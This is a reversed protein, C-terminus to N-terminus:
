LTPRVVLYEVAKRIWPFEPGCKRLVSTKAIIDDVIADNTAHKLSHTVEPQVNEIPTVSHIVMPPQPAVVPEDSQRWWLLKSPHAIVAVAKRFVEGASGVNALFDIVWIVPALLPM